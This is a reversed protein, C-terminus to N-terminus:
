RLPIRMNSKKAARAVPGMTDVMHLVNSVQLRQEQPM